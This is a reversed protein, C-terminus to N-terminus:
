FDARDSSSDVRAVAVCSGLLCRAVGHLDQHCSRRSKDAGRDCLSEKCSPILHDADVAQVVVVVNAQFVRAELSDSLLGIKALVSEIQRIGILGACEECGLPGLAHNMERSLSADPVRDFLGEDVPRRIETGEQINELATTVLFDGV